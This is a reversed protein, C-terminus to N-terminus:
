NWDHVSVSHVRGGVLEVQMYYGVPLNYDLVGDGSSYITKDDPAGLLEIAQDVTMSEVVSSQAIGYAMGVTRHESWRAADFDEPTTSVCGTVCLATCVLLAVCCIIAWTGYLSRRM